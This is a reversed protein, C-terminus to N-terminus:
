NKAEAHCRKDCFIKIERPFKTTFIKKGNEYITILQYYKLVFLMQKKLISWKAASFRNKPTHIEIHFDYNSLRKNRKM